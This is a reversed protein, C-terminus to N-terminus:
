SEDANDAELNAYRVVVKKLGVTEFEIVAKVDLGHGELQAVTGLGFRPHRVSSGVTINPLTAVEQSDSYDYALEGPEPGRQRRTLRGSRDAPWRSSLRDSYRETECIELLTDPLPRLFSSPSSVMWDGARRRRRAHTLYLKEQTRTIGVYFLRREEELQELSDYSRSLPFLGEELGAIMVVPFELGKATHVTMLTVADADPDLNDIDAILAIKQLFLDLETVEGAEELEEDELASAADFESAAAVLEEVNQARDIGEHGEERLKELLQLGIILETLLEHIHMHHALERYRDIMRAFAELASAGAPRIGDIRSASRAAELPSIGAARAATLLATLTTDGIGRRPYNVIRLFSSVERPNSVLKLYAIVDKIERREYFRVGGIIRYPLDADRFAEELSRSQANTRYLVVFSRHGMDLSHAVRDSIEGAIWNAEDAEDAAMVLTILSGTKNETYLTKGKRNVNEAIVSNGADLIVQTSRYNRELRVTRATPFDREFELINRIDAGRWGYISQDDDGVVCLNTHERALLELFRYQAHNTDQYEDVLVFQFRSRFRDLVEAESEFLEVPKVLLDDFDFSNASRLRRQYAPYVDAVMRSFPDYATESYAHPTILQNKATSIAEHIARPRWRKPVNQDEMVHRIERLSDDADLITFDPGFEVRTAYRRLIRAGISHFTGIWMGAPEVGLLARVRARMEGSAKNTFTVALILNPDVGHHEILHAIRSTLVRTKGSGAGALVLLPGEFHEVAERQQPNLSELYGGLKSDSSPM